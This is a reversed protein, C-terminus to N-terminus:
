GMCKKKGSSWTALNSKFKHGEQRQGEFAPKSVGDKALSESYYSQRRRGEALFAMGREQCLKEVKQCELKVFAGMRVWKKAWPSSHESQMPRPKIAGAETAM